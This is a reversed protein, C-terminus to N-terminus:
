RESVSGHEPCRSTFNGVSMEEHTKGSMLAGRYDMGNSHIIDFREKAEEKFDLDGSDQVHTLLSAMNSEYASAVADSRLMGQSTDM